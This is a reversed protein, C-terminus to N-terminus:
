HSLRTRVKEMNLMDLLPRVQKHFDDIPKIRMELRDQWEKQDDCHNTIQEKRSRLKEQVMQGLEVM